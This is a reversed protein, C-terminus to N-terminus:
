HNHARNDSDKSQPLPSLNLVRLVSCLEKTRQRLRFQSFPQSVSFMKPISQHPPQVCFYLPSFYQPISSPRILTSQLSSKKLFYLYFLSTINSQLLSFSKQQLNYPNNYGYTPNHFHLIM